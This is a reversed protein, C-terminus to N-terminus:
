KESSIKDIGSHYIIVTFISNICINGTLEKLDDLMVYDKNINTTAILFVSVM